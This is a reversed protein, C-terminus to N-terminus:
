KEVMEVAAAFTQYEIKGNEIVYTDTGISVNVVPTKAHWVIYAIDDNVEMKDLTFETGDPPFMPVMASFLGRIAELGKYTSDPAVVVSEETYDEMLADINNEGFAQLHHNLVNQSMETSSEDEGEDESDADTSDHMEHEHEEGDHDHDTSNTCSYTFMVLTATVITLVKKM